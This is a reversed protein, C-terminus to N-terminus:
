IHKLSLSHEFSPASFLLGRSELDKLVMPDADKVFTGAFPTDATMDGKADVLVRGDEPSPLQRAEINHKPYLKYDPNQTPTHARLSKPYSIHILSLCQNFSDSQRFTFHTCVAKITTAM